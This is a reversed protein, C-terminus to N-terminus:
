NKYASAENYIHLFIDQELLVPPLDISILIVNHLKRNVNDIRLIEVRFLYNHVFIRKM